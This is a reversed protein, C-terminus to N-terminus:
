NRVHSLFYDRTKKSAKAGITAISKGISQMVDFNGAKDMAKIESILFERNFIFALIYSVESEPSKACVKKLDRYLKSVADRTIGLYNAAHGLWEDQNVTGLPRASIFSMIKGFPHLPNANRFHEPAQWAANMSYVEFKGDPSILDFHFRKYDHGNTSAVLSIHREDSPTIGIAMLAAALNIDGTSFERKRM